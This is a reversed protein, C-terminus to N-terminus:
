RPLCRCSPVADASPRVCAMGSPCAPGSGCRCTSPDGLDSCADARACGPTASVCTAVALADRAANMAWQQCAIRGRGDCVGGPSPPETVSPCADASAPVDPAPVDPRGADVTSRTCVGLVCVEGAACRHFCAGCHDSATAIDVCLSARTCPDTCCYTGAACPCVCRGQRCPQFSLCRVGCAGCNDNDTRPDVCRGGCRGLPAVCGPDNSPPLACGDGAGVDLVDSRAPGDDGPADISDAADIADTANATGGRDRPTELDFLPRTDPMSGSDVLFGIDVGTGVDGASGSTNHGGCAALLFALPVITRLAPM